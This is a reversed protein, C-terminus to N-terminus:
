GSSPFWSGLDSAPSSMVRRFTGHGLRVAVGGGMVEVATGEVATGEVKHEGWRM